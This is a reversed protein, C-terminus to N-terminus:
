RVEGFLCKRQKVKAFRNDDIMEINPQTKKRDLTFPFGRAFRCCGHATAISRYIRAYLSLILAHHCENKVFMMTEFVIWGIFKEHLRM